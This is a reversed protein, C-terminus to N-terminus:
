FQNYATETAVNSRMVYCQSHKDGQFSTLTVSVTDGSCVHLTHRLILKCINENKEGQM